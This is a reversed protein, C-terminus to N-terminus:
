HKTAKSYFFRSFAYCAKWDTNRMRHVTTMSGFYELTEQSNLFNIKHISFSFFNARMCLQTGERGYKVICRDGWGKHRGSWTAALGSSGPLEGGRTHTHTVLWRTWFKGSIISLCYCITLSAEMSFWALLIFLQLFFMRENEMRDGNVTLLCFM